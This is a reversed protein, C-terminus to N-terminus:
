PRGSQRLLRIYHRLRDFTAPDQHVLASGVVFSLWQPDNAPDAGNRLHDAEAPSVFLCEATRRVPDRDGDITERAATEGLQQLVRRLMHSVGDEGSPGASQEVELLRPQSLLRGITRAALGPPLEIRDVNEFLVPLLHYPLPRGGSIFERTESRLEDLLHPLEALKSQDRRLRSALAQIADILREHV